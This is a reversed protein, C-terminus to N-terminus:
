INNLIPKIHELDILYDILHLASIFLIPNMIFLEIFKKPTIGWILFLNLIYKFCDMLEERVRDSDVEKTKKTM